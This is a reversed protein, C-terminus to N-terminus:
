SHLCNKITIENIKINNKAAELLVNIEYEYRDGKINLLFPIMDFSFARLGSQTDWISVGSVLKFIYRTVTNGFKSRFPVDGTFCRSGIVM